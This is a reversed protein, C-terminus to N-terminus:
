KAWRIIYKGDWSDFDVSYGLQELKLRQGLTISKGCSCSYYGEDTADKIRVFFSDLNAEETLRERTAKTDLNAKDSNIFAAPEKANDRRNWFSLEGM